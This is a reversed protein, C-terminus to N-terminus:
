AEARSSRCRATPRATSGSSRRTAASAGSPHSFSATSSLRSAPRSRIDHARAFADGRRTLEAVSPARDVLISLTLGRQPEELWLVIADAPPTARGWGPPVRISYGAAVHETPFDAIVAPPDGAPEADSDGANAVLITLFDVAGRRAFRRPEDADRDPARSTGVAAAVLLSALSHVLPAPAM